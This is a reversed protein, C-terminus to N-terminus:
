GGNNSFYILLFTGVVLALGLLVAITVKLPSVPTKGSVRGNKGNVFFNYLKQKWNCHGVYVPLLLYKYTVNSFSTNVNLYDVVDYIYQRLIGRRIEANAINQAVEWCEQGTKDNSQAVYGHLFDTSYEKSDNTDFPRMKELDRQSIKESAQVLIDDFRMNYNGAINFYRIERIREQKGNRTVTRYYYKGLRGFYSSGSQTDFTFAPSYTGRIKEPKASKKFANPAFFKKRAWKTVIETASKKSIAFPVVGNPKLGSLEETVVINTTGCFPCEKAIEHKSLVEKAGCNNCRFVHTESGWNNQPNALLSNFDIEQSLKSMEVDSTNGCYPCLLKQKEPDFVMKAGCAPCQATETTNEKANGENIQALVNEDM